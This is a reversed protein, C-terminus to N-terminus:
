LTRSIVTKVGNKLLSVNFNILLGLKIDPLKFYTLLQVLSVDSLAEVSKVEVIFKNEIIIAISYSLDLKVVEYVL